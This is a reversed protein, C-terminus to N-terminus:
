KGGEQKKKNESLSVGSPSDLKFIKNKFSITIGSKDIKLIRSEEIIDGVKLVKNNIIAQPLNSGWIIGEVILSPPKVVEQEQAGEQQPAVLSEKQATYPLFPDRLGDSTYKTGPKELITDQSYTDESEAFLLNFPVIFVPSLIVFVFLLAAIINKSAIM